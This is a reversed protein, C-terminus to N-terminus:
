IGPAWPSELARKQEGEDDEADEKGDTDFEGHMGAVTSAAVHEATMIIRCDREKRAERVVLKRGDDTKGETKEPGQRM